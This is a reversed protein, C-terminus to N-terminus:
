VQGLNIAFVRPRLQPVVHILALDFTEEGEAHVAHHDARVRALVYVSQLAGIPEDDTFEVRVLRALEPTRRADRFVLHRLDRRRNIAQGTRAKGLLVARE